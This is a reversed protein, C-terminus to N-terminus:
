RNPLELIIVEIRENKQQNKDESGSILPSLKGYGKFVLQQESIGIMRFYSYIVRARQATLELADTYSLDSRSHARIEIKIGPYQQLHSAWRELELKAQQSLETSQSTFQVRELIHTQGKKLQSLTAPSNTQNLNLKWETNSSPAQQFADNKWDVSETDPRHTTQEQDLKNTKQPQQFSKSIEMRLLDTDITSSDRKTDFSKTDVTSETTKEQWLYEQDESTDQKKDSLENHFQRFRRKMEEVEARSDARQQLEKETLPSRPTWEYSTPISDQPVLPKVALSDTQSYLSISFSSFSFIFFVLIHRNKM